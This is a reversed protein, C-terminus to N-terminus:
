SDKWGPMTPARSVIGEFGAIGVLRLWDREGALVDLLRDVGKVDRCGARGGPMGLELIVDLPRECGCGWLAGVLAKAGAESEIFVMVRREPSVRHLEMLGM